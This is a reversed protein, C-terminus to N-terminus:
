LILARETQLIFHVQKINVLPLVIAEEPLREIVYVALLVPGIDLM